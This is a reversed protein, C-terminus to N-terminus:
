QYSAMSLKLLMRSMQYFKGGASTADIFAQQVMEASTAGKSMEEKLQAMSKGTKETRFQLPNFGQGVMQNFDQGM